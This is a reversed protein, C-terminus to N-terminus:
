GDDAIAQKPVTVGDKGNCTEFKHTDVMIGSTGPRNGVCLTSSCCPTQLVVDIALRFELDLVKMQRGEMVVLLQMPPPNADIPMRRSPMVGLHLGCPGTRDMVEDSCPKPQDLSPSARPIELDPTTLRRRSENITLPSPAPPYTCCSFPACAM